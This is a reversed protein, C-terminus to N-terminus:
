DTPIGVPDQIFKPTDKKSRKTQKAGIDGWGADSGADSFTTAAKVPNEFPAIGNPRPFDISRHRPLIRFFAM